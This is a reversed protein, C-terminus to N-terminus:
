NKIIKGIKLTEKESNLIKYVYIGKSFKSLDISSSISNLEINTLNEDLITNLQFNLPFIFNEDVEINLRNITPNPYIKLPKFTQSQISLNGGNETKFIKGESGVVYGVSDNTFYVDSLWSVNVNQTIWSDGGDITKQILVNNPGKGVAYGINISPFYISQIGNGSNTFCDTTICNWNSGGDITKTFVSYYFGGFFGKNETTFYMGSANSANNPNPNSNLLLWTEGGDNTKIFSNIGYAYGVNESPFCISSCNLPSKLNWNNGGDITKYIGSTSILFGIQNTIFIIKRINNSTSNIENWSSGGDTTKLISSGVAFGISENIFYISKLYISPNSYITNWTEGADISKLITGSGVVYGINSTPFHVATLNDNVGSTKQTWQASITSFSLLVLFVINLQIKEM